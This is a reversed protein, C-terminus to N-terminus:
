FGFPLRNLERLMLTIYSHWFHGNSGVEICEPGAIHIWGDLVLCPFNGPNPARFVWLGETKSHNLTFTNREMWIILRWDRVAESPCGPNFHVIPFCWGSVFSRAWDSIFTLCFPHFYQARFCRCTLLWLSCCREEKWCWSSNNAYPSFFMACCGRSWNLLIGWNITDFVALLDRPNLTYRM